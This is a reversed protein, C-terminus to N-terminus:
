SSEIDTTTFVTIVSLIYGVPRYHVTEILIRYRCYRDARRRRARRDDTSCAAHLDYDTNEHRAAADTPRALSLSSFRAYQSDRSRPLTTPLFKPTQRARRTRGSLLRLYLSLSLSHNLSHTAPSLSNDRTLSPAPSLFLTVTGFCYVCMEM